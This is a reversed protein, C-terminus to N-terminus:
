VNPTVEVVTSYEAKKNKLILKLRYMTKQRGAKEYFLYKATESKDTGFVLAALTYNKGDTSKEVEFQDATENEAVMWELFVKNDKFNGTFSILKASSSNFAATLLPHSTFPAISAQANGPQYFIRLAIIIIFAVSKIM